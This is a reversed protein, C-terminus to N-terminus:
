EKLVVVETRRNLQRGEQTNNHAIPRTDGYGKAVLRKPDIGKEILYKRVAQSRSFSLNKNDEPSGVNDTHGAIEIVLNKKHNLIDVLVDLEKYSEPRLTAKSFDFLVDYLTWSKAPEFKMQLESTLIGKKHPVDLTSYNEEKTGNLYIILYVDGEPLLVQLKGSENTVAKIEKKTEKGRFLITEGSKPNEEFDTFLVEVLAEEETGQLPNQANAFGVYFLLM